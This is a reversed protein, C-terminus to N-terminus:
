IVYKINLKLQFAHAPHTGLDPSTLYTMTGPGKTSYSEAWINSQHKTFQPNILILHKYKFMQFIPPQLHPFTLHPASETKPWAHKTSYSAWSEHTKLQALKPLSINIYKNPIISFISHLYHASTFTQHSPSGCTLPPKPTPYHAYFPSTLANKNSWFISQHTIILNIHLDPQNEQLPPLMHSSM